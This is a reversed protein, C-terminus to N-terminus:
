GPAGFAVAACGAAVSELALNTAILPKAPEVVPSPLKVNLQSLPEVEVDATELGARAACRLLLQLPRVIALM